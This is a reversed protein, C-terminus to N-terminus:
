NENKFKLLLREYDEHWKLEAKLEEIRMLSEKQEQPDEADELQKTLLEIDKKFKEWWWKEKRIGM